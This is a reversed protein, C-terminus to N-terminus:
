AAPLGLEGCAWVLPSWTHKHCRLRAVLAGRCEPAVWRGAERQRRLAERLVLPGPQPGPIAWNVPPRQRTCGGGGGGGGASSAAEDGGRSGKDAASCLQQRCSVM